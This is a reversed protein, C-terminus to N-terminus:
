LWGSRKFARYIALYVVAMLGLVAFYGYRWRLEPMDDFNMGYIGAIMTPVAAIAVWASIRRMDNNQQVSIQASTPASSTPSCATTPSSTTSSRQLHDSVDRLLLRPENEDVPSHECHHLMQLPASLPVAARRFELVERKLRYITASDM